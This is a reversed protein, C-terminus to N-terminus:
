ANIDILTGLMQDVTKIVGASAKVQLESIKLNIIPTALDGSELNTGVRALQAASQNALDIGAQVGQAGVSLISNISLSVEIVTAILTFLVFSGSVYRLGSAM